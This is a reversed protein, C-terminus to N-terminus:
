RAVCECVRGGVWQSLTLSSLLSLPFSLSLPLLSPPSLPFSNPPLLSLPLSPPCFYDVHCIYILIRGRLNEKLNNEHQMLIGCVSDVSHVGESIRTIKEERKSFFNRFFSCNFCSVFTLACAFLKIFFSLVFYHSLFFSLLFTILFLTGFVDL